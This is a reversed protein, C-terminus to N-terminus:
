NMSLSTPAHSKMQSFVKPTLKSLEERSFVKKSIGGKINNIDFEIVFADKDIKDILHYTKGIDIRNIVLHLIDMEAKRGTSGYGRSGRYVTVGTGVKEILEAEVDSSQASVIMLGVYDEFGEIILDIVKSTVLYTLISYMVMEVPLIIATIGFLIANFFLNVKGISLGYKKNVYIGLIESGDLVTGNKLALGLGAGLFLGGFIAILLKDDTIPDFSELSIFLGFAIIAIISKIVVRNSLTNRALILFPISISLLLLSPDVGTQTSILIAFGTVGGDLFGNPLLFAKLGISALVAAVLIQFYEWLVASKLRLRRGM